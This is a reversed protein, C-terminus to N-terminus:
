TFFRARRTGPIHKNSWRVVERIVPFLDRGASTLHYEYRLPREQYPRREILGSRELRKLRDSLISTTIGEGSDLLAGYHKKGFFLDRVIVLTWKDGWLDLACALPCISRRLSLAAPGSKSRM